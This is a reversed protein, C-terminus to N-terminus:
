PQVSAQILSRFDQFSMGSKNKFDKKIKEAARITNQKQLNDFLGAGAKEGFARNTVIANNLTPSNPKSQLAFLQFDLPSSKGTVSSPQTLFMVLKQGKQYNMEGMGFKKMSKTPIQKFSYVTGTNGKFTELVRFFIETYRPNQPDVTDTEVKIVEGLFIVHARESLEEINFGRSLFASAHTSLFFLILFTIRFMKVM